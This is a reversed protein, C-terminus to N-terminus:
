RAFWKVQVKRSKTRISHTRVCTTRALASMTAMLCPMIRGEKEEKKKKKGSVERGWITIGPHVAPPTRASHTLLSGGRCVLKANQHSRLAHTRVNHTRPRIYHGSFKANNTKRGEKKKKGEM